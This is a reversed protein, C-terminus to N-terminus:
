TPDIIMNSVQSAVNPTGKGEENDICEVDVDDKDDDGQEATVPRDVQTDSEPSLFTQITLELEM